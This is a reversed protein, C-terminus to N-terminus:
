GGASTDRAHRVEGVHQLAAVALAQNRIIERRREPDDGCLELAEAYLRAAEDKAWGRGAQDAALLLYNLAREDEGAERWHHALATATAAEAATTQELFRAVVAHLARRKTRPVTAYAVDRIVAHKFTFQEEGEIWSTGEQRILDRAELSDLAESLAAGNERMTRLAGRWFVKGIIAADLLVAREERALADLRASVLERITTPLEGEASGTREVAAATLEEIFLPNGGAVEAVRAEDVGVANGRFLRTVLERADAANLPGLSMTTHAPLGGGWAPRLHLLEPRALALLMLPVDRVRTALFELLDLTGSDAWHLDELVLLTPQAQALAEVFRRAARFLVQRDAVEGGHGLGILLEIHPAIEDVVGPSAIGALAARLKRQASAADDSAFIGAFQKIQLAIPGYPSSAGYPMSRGSLLRAGRQEVQRAFEAALRTKGIGPEGLVTVLNARRDALVADFIRALAALEHARGLMPVASAEREGPGAKVSVALWAQIPAKDEKSILPDAARYDVLTRTARYTGEGVLIRNSPANSQLRAAVNVVDGALARHLEAIDLAVIAEGTNVATRVEVELDPDAANLEAVADCLAFAGRVAREADDGHAIPAGFVAVLAGGVFKEVAGGFAELENRLTSYYQSLIAREDEPDLGEARAAFIVMDALVVTIIRREEPASDQSAGHRDRLRAQGTATAGSSTTQRQRDDLQTAALDGLVSPPGAGFAIDAPSASPPQLAERAALLFENCSGFREAPDKALARLIVEDIAAPLDPAAASPPPPREQMHAWLLAADTDKLFPVSGTLCEYLVCGLSYIDARADIQKDQIQEPSVYDVTGMFQGTATLGSASRTQKTIGFDALYVHDPEGDATQEILINAPKVDRHVLGLRHAADLARGTQGILWLAQLASVHGHKRLVTGLDAGAVYRMAIFLLEGCPAATM